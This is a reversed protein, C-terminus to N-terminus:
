ETVPTALVSDASLSVASASVLLDFPPLARVITLPLQALVSQQCNASVLDKRGFCSVSPAMALAIPGTEKSFRWRTLILGLRATQALQRTSLNENSDKFLSTSSIASGWRSVASCTAV